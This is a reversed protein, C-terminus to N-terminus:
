HMRFCCDRSVRLTRPCSFYVPMYRSMPLNAVIGAAEIVASVALTKGDPSWAASYIVPEMRRLLHRNGGDRDM